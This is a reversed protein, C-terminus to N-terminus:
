GGVPQSAPSVPAPVETSVPLAGDKEKAAARFRQQAGQKTLGYVAGIKSWSTGHERAARVEDLELDESLHRIRRAMEIRTRPDTTTALETLAEQLQKLPTSAKM